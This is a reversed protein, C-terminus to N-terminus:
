AFYSKFKNDNAVSKQPALSQTQVPIVNNNANIPSTAPETYSQSQSESAPSSQADTAIKLAKAKDRHDVFAILGALAAAGGLVALVRKDKLSSAANSIVDGFSKKSVKHGSSGNKMADLMGRQTENISQMTNNLNDLAASDFTAGPAGKAGVNGWIINKAYESDIIGPLSSVDLMPSIKSAEGLVHRDVYLISSPRGDPNFDGNDMWSTKLKLLNAFREKAGSADGLKDQEARFMAAGLEDAQVKNRFENILNKLDDSDMFETYADALANKLDKHALHKENQIKNYIATADDAFKDFVGFEHNYKASDVIAGCTEPFADTLAKKQADTFAASKRFGFTKEKDTGQARGKIKLAGDKGTDAPETEIITDLITKIKEPAMYYENTTKYAHPQITKGNISNGDITEDFNKQKLGQTNSTIPMAYYKGGELDVLECPAFRSALVVFDAASAFPKNPAFGDVFVVRGELGAKKVREMAKAIAEKAEKNGDCSGGLVLVSNDNAGQRTAYNIFADIANEHAKQFDGRGWSVFLSVDENNKLRNIFKEDIYGTVAPNKNAAGAIFDSNIDTAFYYKPNEDTGINYRGLRQFLSLKNERKTAQMSKYASNLATENISGDPKFIDYKTKDRFDEFTAFGKIVINNKNDADINNFIEVAKNNAIIGLKNKDKNSIKEEIAGNIAKKIYDVIDAYTKDPQAAYEKITKQTEDLKLKTPDIKDGAGLNDATEKIAKKITEEIDVASNIQITKADPRILLDQKYYDMGVSKTPDFSPDSFGNIIGGVYDNGNEKIGEVWAKLDAAKAPDLLDGDFGSRKIISGRLPSVEPNELISEFYGNSVVDFRDTGKILASSIAINGNDDLFNTVFHKFYDEERGAQRLKHYVPDNLVRGLEDHSMLSLALSKSSAPGIYTGGGLNHGVGTKRVGNYFCNDGEKQMKINIFEPILGAQSDSCIITQDNIGAKAFLEVFAKSFQAYAMKDSDEPVLGKKVVDFVQENSMARAEVSSNRSSKIELALPKPSSSYSGDAYPKSMSSVLPTHIFYMNVASKGANANNANLNANIQNLKPHDKVKYLVTDVSNDLGWEIKSDTIKELIAYDGQGIVSDKGALVNELETKLKDPQYAFGKERWIKDSVYVPVTQQQGNINLQMERVVPTTKGTESKYEKILDGNYAPVFLDVQAGNAQLAEKLQTKKAQDIGANEAAQWLWNAFDSVYDSGVTAVGGIKWFPPVEAIPLAVGAKNKSGAGGTFSLTCPSPNLLRSIKAEDIAGASFVAETKQAKAPASYIAQNQVSNIRM